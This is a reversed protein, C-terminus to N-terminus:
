LKSCVILDASIALGDVGNRSADCGFVDCVGSVSCFSGRLSQKAVGDVGLASKLALLALWVTWRRAGMRMRLERRGEDGRRGKRQYRLESLQGM